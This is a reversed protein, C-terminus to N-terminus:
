AVLSKDEGSEFDHAGTLFPEYFHPLDVSGRTREHFREFVSRMTPWATRPDVMEVRGPDTFGRLAFGPRTDLEVMRRMTAVGFGWRGYITAESATLAALPMGDAVAGALTDEMLRRLLGRRRHAPSTTVDTILRAPVIDRGLNISKDFATFTAVPVPGAGFAGKPLWAGTVVMEDALAQDLW